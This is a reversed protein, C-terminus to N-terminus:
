VVGINPPQKLFTKYAIGNKQAFDIPKLALDIKRDLSFFCYLPDAIVLQIFKDLLEKRRVMDNFDITVVAVWKNLTYMRSVAQCLVEVDSSNKVGCKSILLYNVLINQLNM